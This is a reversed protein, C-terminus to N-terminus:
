ELPVEPDVTYFSMVCAPSREVERIVVDAGKIKGAAVATLLTQFSASPVAVFASLTRDRTSHVGGIGKHAPKKTHVDNASPNLRLEVRELERGTPNRIPGRLLLSHSEWSFGAVPQERDNVHLGYEYSWSEVAFRFIDLTANSTLPMALLYAGIIAASRHRAM